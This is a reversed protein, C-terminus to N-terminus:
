KKEFDLIPKDDVMVSFTEWRDASALEHKKITSNEFTVTAKLGSVKVKGKIDTTYEKGAFNGSANFDTIVKYEAKDGTFTYTIYLMEDKYEYTGSPKGFIGTLLNSCSTMLIASVVLAAIVLIKASKRM